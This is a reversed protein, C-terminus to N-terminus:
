REKATEIGERRVREAEGDDLGELQSRLMTLRSQGTFGSGDLLAAGKKRRLGDIENEISVKREALDTTM